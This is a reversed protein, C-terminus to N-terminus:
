NIISHWFGDYFDQNIDIKDDKESFNDNIPPICGYILFYNLSEFFIDNKLTILDFEKLFNLVKDLKYNDGFHNIILNYFDGFHNLHYKAKKQDRIEAYGFSYVIYLFVDAEILQRSSAEEM